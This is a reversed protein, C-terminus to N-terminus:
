MASHFQITRALLAGRPKIHLEICLFLRTSYRPHKGQVRSFFFAPLPNNAGVSSLVLPHDVWQVTTEGISCHPLGLLGFLVGLQGSPADRLRLLGLMELEDSRNLFTRREKESELLSLPCSLPSLLLLSLTPARPRLIHSYSQKPAWPENGARVQTEKCRFAFHGSM